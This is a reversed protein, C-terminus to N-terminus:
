LEDKDEGDVWCWMVGVGTTQSLWRVYEQAQEFTIGTVPYNGTVKDFQYNKDFAAWQARTVEFRGMNIKKYKVPEPVLVGQKEIGYRGNVKAIKLFHELPSGKKLSPNKQKDTKFLYKEFWQLDETLKRRQHALKRPGHGEGPFSIFRVPAKGIQQLARYFEWGQEYPVNVDKTGHFILIPTTVKGLQFFPSKKIYQEVKEWPPGGHIM